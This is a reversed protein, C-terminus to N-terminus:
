LQVVRGEAAKALRNMVAAGIGSAPVGHVFIFEAGLEDFRRLLRYLERALAAAYPEGTPPSWVALPKRGSAPRWGPTILAVRRGSAREDWFAEVARRVAPADGVWVCVQADPAYHRYKMGPALPVGQEGSHEAASRVPLGLARELDAPTVSGPRLVVVEGDAIWAVTSEVGVPCPGGDVLGDIRGALDAAVHEASTPSPRGSRNASPAAVPCAAKGLLALAVPHSPCRVGVTAVGPHVSPALRPHAPLLLTLPGPWFVEMAKEALRPIAGQVVGALMARSDVHVILPNDSPRGKAAFIRRVAAEDWANAGLGYVTETPFAVLGGARLLAGAEALAAEAQVAGAAAVNWVKM